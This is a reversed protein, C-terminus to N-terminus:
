FTQESSHCETSIVPNCNWAKISNMWPEDHRYFYILVWSGMFNLLHLRLHLVFAYPVQFNEISQLNSIWNHGGLSKECIPLCPISKIIPLCDIVNRSSIEKMCNQRVKKTQSGVHKPQHIFYNSWSSSYLQNQIKFEQIQDSINFFM